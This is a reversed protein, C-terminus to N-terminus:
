NKRSFRTEKFRHEQSVNGNRLVSHTIDVTYQSTTTPVDEAFVLLRSSGLNSQQRVQRNQLRKTESSIKTRVGSSLGERLHSEIMPFRHRSGRVYGSGFTILDDVGNSLALSQLFSNWLEALIKVLKLCTFFLLM